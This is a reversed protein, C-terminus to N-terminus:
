KWKGQDTIASSVPACLCPHQKAELPLSYLFSSTQVKTQPLGSGGHQLQWGTWLWLQARGELWGWQPALSMLSATKGGSGSMQWSFVMSRGWDVGCPASYNHRLARGLNRVWLIVLCWLFAITKLWYAKPYNPVCYFIVLIHWLNMKCLKRRKTTGFLDM